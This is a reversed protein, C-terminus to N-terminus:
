NITCLMCTSYSQVKRRTRQWALNQKTATVNVLHGLLPSSLYSLEALYLQTSHVSTYQPESLLTRGALYCQICIHVSARISSNQLPDFTMRPIITCFSPSGPFSALTRGPIYLRASYASTYQPESLLTRGPLVTHLHTSLSQYFLEVLYCQICIHVSARISSNQWTASYASTYQPESLLTRGPLVSHLHTSLSQYFLEALYCQICIHVSHGSVYKMCTCDNQTVLLSHVLTSTSSDVPIHMDAYIPPPLSTTPKNTHAKM